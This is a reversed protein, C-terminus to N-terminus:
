FGHSPASHFSEFDNDFLVVDLAERLGLGDFRTRTEYPM